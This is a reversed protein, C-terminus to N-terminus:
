QVHETVYDHFLIANYPASTFKGTSVTYYNRDMDRIREENRSHLESDKEDIDKDGRGVIVGGIIRPRIFRITKGFIAGFRDEHMSIFEDKDEVLTEFSWHNPPADSCCFAKMSYPYWSFYMYDAFNVFDGFPGNVITISREDDLSQIKDSVIGCKYRYNTDNRSYPLVCNDILTKHEWLCNVVKECYFVDNGTEIQYHSFTKKVHRITNGLFVRIGQRQITHFVVNNLWEHDIAYEETEYCCQFQDYPVSVKRFLTEPTEGLYNLTNDTHILEEYRKQIKHFFTDLQSENLLSTTPVLYVFPKSKIRKWDVKQDILYEISNSFQLADILMKDATRFTHDNSYVFGLHIKGEHNASAGHMLRENKDIIAVRFGKKYLSLAICCGQIGGGMIIYDFTNEPQVFENIRYKSSLRHKIADHLIRREDDTSVYKRCLMWVSLYFKSIRDNTVNWKTHTNDGHYCKYYPVDVGVMKGTIANQLIQFTDVMMDNDLQENLYLLQPDSSKRILGRFSVADSHNLVFDTMRTILDHDIISKQRITGTHSYNSDVKIIYPFCNTIDADKQMEQFLNSIYHTPVYDDCPIICFYQFRSMSILRNCNKVWGINVPNSLLVVRNDSIFSQLLQLSNDTSCDDAILLEFDTFTQDLISQICKELFREGNYVPVCISIM